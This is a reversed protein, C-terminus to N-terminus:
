VSIDRVRWHLARVREIRTSVNHPKIYGFLTQLQCGRADERTRMTVAIKGRLHGCFVRKNVYRLTILLQYLVHEKSSMGGEPASCRRPKIPVDKLCSLAERISNVV